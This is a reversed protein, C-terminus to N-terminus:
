ISAIFLIQEITSECINVHYKDFKLKQGKITLGRASIEDDGDAQRIPIQILARSKGNPLQRGQRCLFQPWPYVKETKYPVNILFLM